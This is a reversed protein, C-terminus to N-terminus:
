RSSAQELKAQVSELVVAVALCCRQLVDFGKLHLLLQHAAKQFIVSVPPFNVGHRSFMHHLQRTLVDQVGVREPFEQQRGEARQIAKHVARNQLSSLLCSHRMGISTTWLLSPLCQLMTQWVSIDSITMNFVQLPSPPSISDSSYTATSDSSDSRRM